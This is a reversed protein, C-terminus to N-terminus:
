VPFATAEEIKVAVREGPKLDPAPGLRSRIRSGDALVITVLQDHGFYERSAVVAEGEPHPTVLVREPRFMVLVKGNHETAFTGVATEVQGQGATAPVFDADGLFGAVWPDVPVRYLDPPTAVQVVRGERMVAVLDSLSLAEEQDHTVFLATARAEALIEKLERRVRQRLSADLNSFPEDLLIVAPRPALARALAVRQQQGGSLEHPLRKETGSLGVLELVEAVRKLDKRDRARKVLGYSVNAAVSMHPFLAYDQFVMGVRRREPPVHLGPGAVPLGGVSVMGADPREFGAIVRLATTKGCGSPGLLTLTQGEEVAIDFGALAAVEGFTKSLGTAEIALETM